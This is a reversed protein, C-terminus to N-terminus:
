LNSGGAAIPHPEFGMCNFTLLGIGSRDLQMPHPGPTVAVVVHRPGVGYVRCIAALTPLTPIMRVTELKSLLATSLGTETALRALTLRKGTYLNLLKM